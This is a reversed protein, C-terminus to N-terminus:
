MTIHLITRIVMFMLISSAIHIEVNGAWVTGDILIRANFFDPGSDRNYTGPHIVQIRNGEPDTLNERDYLSYKWLYHLFEEKM